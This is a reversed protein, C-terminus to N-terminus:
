VDCGQQRQLGRDAQHLARVRFRRLDGEHALALDVLVVERQAGEHERLDLAAVQPEDEGRVVRHEARLRPPKRLREAHLSRMELASRSLTTYPFLTSRPPRRIM